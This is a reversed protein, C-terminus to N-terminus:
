FVLLEVPIRRERCINYSQRPRRPLSIGLISHQTGTPPENCSEAIRTDDPYQPSSSQQTVTWTDYTFLEWFIVWRRQAEEPDLDWGANDRGSPLYWRM